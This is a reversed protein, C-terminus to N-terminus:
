SPHGPIDETASGVRAADVGDGDSLLEHVEAGVAGGDDPRVDHRYLITDEVEAEAAGVERLLQASAGAGSTACWGGREARCEGPSSGSV